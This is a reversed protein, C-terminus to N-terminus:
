DDPPCYYSGDEYDQFDYFNTGRCAAWYAGTKGREISSIGNTWGPDLITSRNYYKVESVSGDQGCAYKHHKMACYYVTVIYGCTNTFHLVDPGSRTQKEWSIDICHAANAQVATPVLTAALVASVICAPLKLM